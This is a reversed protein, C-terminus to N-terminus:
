VDHNHMLTVVHTFVLFLLHFEGENWEEKEEKVPTTVEAPANPDPYLKLRILLREFPEPSLLKVMAALPLSLFGLIISIAWDRGGIPVVQFAAGGVEVILIQGGVM